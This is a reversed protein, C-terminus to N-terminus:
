SLTLISHFVSTPRILFTAGQPSLLPKLFFFSFDHQSARGGPFVMTPSSYKCAPLVVFRRLIRSKIIKELALEKYFSVQM